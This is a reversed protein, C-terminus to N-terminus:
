AMFVNLLTFTYLLTKKFEDINPPSHSGYGSPFLISM